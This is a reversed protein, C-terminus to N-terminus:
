ITKAYDEFSTFNDSSRVYKLIDEPNNPIDLWSAQLDWSYRQWINMCEDISAILGEEIYLRAQLSFLGEIDNKDYFIGDIEVNEYEPHLKYM